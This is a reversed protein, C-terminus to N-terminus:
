FRPERETDQIRKGPMLDPSRRIRIPGDEYSEVGNAVLMAMIERVYALPMAGARADLNMGHWTNPASETPPEKEQVTELVADAEAEVKAVEALIQAQPDQSAEDM